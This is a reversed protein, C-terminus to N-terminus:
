KRSKIIRMLEEFEDLEEPSMDKVADKLKEKDNKNNSTFRSPKYSYGPIRDKENYDNLRLWERIYDEEDESIQRKRDKEHKKDGRAQDRDYKWQEDDRDRQLRRNYDEDDETLRRKRDRDYEESRRKQDRQYRWEEEDRERQLRKKYDSEEKAAKEKEARDYESRHQDSWYDKDETIHTRGDAISKALDYTNIRNGAIKNAVIAAAANVSMDAAKRGAAPVLSDVFADVLQKGRGKPHAKAYEDQLVKERQLRRIRDEVEQDTLYGPHEADFRMKAQYDKDIQNDVKRNSGERKAQEKLEKRRIKNYHKVGAPTLSGDKRQWRRLGWHMGLIGYHMLEDEFEDYTAM